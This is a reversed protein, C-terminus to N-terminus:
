SLEECALRSNFRDRSFAAGVFDLISTRELYGPQKFYRMGFEAKPRIGWAGPGLSRVHVDYIGKGYIYLLIEM